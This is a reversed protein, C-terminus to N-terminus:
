SAGQAFLRGPRSKQGRYSAVRRLSTRVHECPRRRVSTFLRLGFIGADSALSCSLPRLCPVKPHSSGRTLSPRSGHASCRPTCGNPQRAVSVQATFCSPARRSGSSALTSVMLLHFGVLPLDTMSVNFRSKIVRVSKWSSSFGSPRLPAVGTLGLYRSARGRVSGGLVPAACDTPVLDLPYASPSSDDPSRPLVFGRFPLVGRASGAQFHCSPPSLFFTASLNLFGAPSVSAPPRPVTPLRDPM